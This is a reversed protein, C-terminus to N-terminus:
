GLRGEFVWVDLLRCSPARTFAAVSHLSVRAGFTNERSFNFALFEATPYEARLSSTPSVRLYRRDSKFTEPLDSSSKVRQEWDFIEDYATNCSQPRGKDSGVGEDSIACGSLVAGTVIVLALWSLWRFM